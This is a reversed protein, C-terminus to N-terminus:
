NQNMRSFCLAVLVVGLVFRTTGGFVLGLPNPTPRADMKKKVDPPLSKPKEAADMLMRANVPATFAETAQPGGEEIASRQETQHKIEAAASVMVAAVESARTQALAASVGEAQLKKREVEQLHKREREEKRARQRADIWQVIPDRWAAYSPRPKDGEPRSWLKRATLLAEYGFLAEYFEEWHTGCYKCVF